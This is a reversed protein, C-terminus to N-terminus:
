SFTLQKDADISPGPFTKGKGLGSGPRVMGMQLISTGSMVTNM